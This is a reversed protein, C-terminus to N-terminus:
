RNLIRELVMETEKASLEDGELRFQNIDRVLYEIDEPHEVAYWIEMESWSLGRERFANAVEAYINPSRWDFSALEVQYKKSMGILYYRGEVTPGFVADSKKLLKLAMKILNEKLTPTRSGIFLVHKYGDDFCRKFAADMKQGWREESLATVKLGNSLVDARKGKLKKTLYNLITSISKRTEPFDGYFLHLDIGKIDLINVITDAVFAHHLIKIEEPSFSDGIFLESGDEAVEQICVALVTDNNKTGSMVSSTVAAYPEIKKM